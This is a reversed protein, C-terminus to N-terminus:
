TIPYGVVGLGSYLTKEKGNIKWTLHKEVELIDKNNKDM